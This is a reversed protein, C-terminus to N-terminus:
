TTIIDSLMLGKRLVTTKYRMRDKPRMVSGIGLIIKEGLKYVSYM